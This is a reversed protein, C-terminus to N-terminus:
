LPAAPWPSLLTYRRYSRFGPDRAFAVSLVLLAPIMTVSDAVFLVNHTEDQWSSADAVPNIPFFLHGLCALSFLAVLGTGRPAM